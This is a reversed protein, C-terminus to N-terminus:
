EAVGPVPTTAEQNPHSADHQYTYSPSGERSLKQVQHPHHREPLWVPLLAASSLPICESASNPFTQGPEELRTPSGDAGCRHRMFCYRCANSNQVPPKKTTVESQLPLGHPLGGWIAGCRFECFIANSRGMKCQHRQRGLRGALTHLLDFVAAQQPLKGRAGDHVSIATSRPLSRSLRQGALPQVEAFDHVVLTLPGLDCTHIQPSASRARLLNIAAPMVQFFDHGTLHLAATGAAQDVTAQPRSCALEQISPRQTGSMNFMHDRHCLSLVLLAPHWCTLAHFSSNSVFSSKPVKRCAGEASKFPLRANKRPDQQAHSRTQRLLACYESM